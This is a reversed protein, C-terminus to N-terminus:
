AFEEGLDDEDAIDALLLRGSLVAMLILTGYSAVCWPCIEHLIFLETYTLYTSFLVGAFTLAFTALAGWAQWLEPWRPGLWLVAFIALYLLLGLYAVPIGLLYAFESNQVAHCNGLGGCVAETDSLKVWSLYGAIAIGLINLILLWTRTRQPM